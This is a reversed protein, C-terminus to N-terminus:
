PLSRAIAMQYLMEKQQYADLLLEQAEADDPDRQAAAQADSIYANVERLNTEYPGRADPDAQALQSVLQQDDSTMSIPSSGSTNQASLQNQPLQPKYNILIVAFVITATLAMAWGLSTWSKTQTPTKTIHGQRSMRGEPLLGERQLSQEINNWVRPNPDNMPLLLKAQEAIYMLDQVLATCSTCTKLHEEEDPKGGSEIIYPLVEQFQQCNMTKM